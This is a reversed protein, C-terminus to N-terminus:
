VRPPGALAVCRKTVRAYWRAMGPPASPSPAAMAPTVRGNRARSAQPASSASRLCSHLAGEREPKRERCEGEEQQKGEVPHEEGRQLRVVVQDAGAGLREPYRVRRQIVQLEQERSGAIWPPEPVRHRDRGRRRQEADCDAEEGRERERAHSKASGFAD